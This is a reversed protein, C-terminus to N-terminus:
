EIPRTLRIPERFWIERAMVVIYTTKNITRYDNVL